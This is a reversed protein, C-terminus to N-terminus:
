TRVLSPVLAILIPLLMALLLTRLFPYAKVASSQSRVKRESETSSRMSPRDLKNRTPRRDYETNGVDKHRTSSTNVEQTSMPTIAHFM